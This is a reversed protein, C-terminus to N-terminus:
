AHLLTGAMTRIGCRDVGGDMARTGYLQNARYSLMIAASDWEQLIPTRPKEEEEKSIGVEPRHRGVFGWRSKEQV